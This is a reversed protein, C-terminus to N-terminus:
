LPSIHATPPTERGAPLASSPRPRMCCIPAPPFRVPASVSPRPRRAGSLPKRPLGGAGSGAPKYVFPLGAPQGGRGSLGRSGAFKGGARPRGRRRPRTGAAGPPAPAAPLPRANDSSVQLVLRAVQGPVGAQGAPLSSRTLVPRPPPRPAARATRVKRLRKSLICEAAFVQEGVSSLEEMSGRARRGRRWRERVAAASGGAACM